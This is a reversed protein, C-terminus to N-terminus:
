LGRPRALRRIGPCGRRPLHPQASVEPVAERIIQLLMEGFCCMIGWPIIVAARGGRKCDSNCSEPDQTRPSGRLELASM